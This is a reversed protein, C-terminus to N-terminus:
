QFKSISASIGGSCDCSKSRVLKAKSIEILLKSASTALSLLYSTFNEVLKESSTIVGEIGTKQVATLKTTKAWYNVKLLNLQGLVFTANRAAEVYMQVYLEFKYQMYALKKAADDCNTTANVVDYTTLKFYGLSFSRLNDLAVAIDSFDPYLKIDNIIATVKNVVEPSTTRINAEKSEVSTQIEKLNADIKTFSASSNASLQTPCNCANKKYIILEIYLRAHKYMALAM